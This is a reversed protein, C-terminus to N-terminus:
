EPKRENASEVSPVIGATSLQHLARRLSVSKLTFVVCVGGCLLSAASCGVVPRKNGKAYDDVAISGLAIGLLTAVAALATNKWFASRLEAAHKRKSELEYQQINRAEQISEEQVSFARQQEIDNKVSSFLNTMEPTVYKKDLTLSPRCNLASRFQREAEAIDGKAFYAVGLYSFYVCASDAAVTDRQASFYNGLTVLLSDYEGWEFFERVRDSSFASSAALVCTILIAAAKNM